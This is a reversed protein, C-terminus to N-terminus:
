LETGGRASKVHTRDTSRSKMWRMASEQTPHPGCIMKVRLMEIPNQALKTTFM